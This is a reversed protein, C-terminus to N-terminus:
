HQYTWGQSATRARPAHAPPRRSRTEYRQVPTRRIERTTEFYRPPPVNTIRPWGHRVPGEPAAIRAPHARPRDGEPVVHVIRYGNRKLERLLAPLAQVTVPQVDHLLLIGKGKEGLRKMAKSVVEDATTSKFWDDAEADSSFVSIGRTVVYGEAEASRQLGPFRFFPAIMRPDGAAATISAIGDDIERQNMEAPMQNFTLPHNQSHTGITHGAGYIRRVMDPHRSAQRGVLFFTAKVCEAALANLVSNTYPPLPGDDFTLVVERPNLPLTHEYQTTGIRKHEHANVTLVRSVGLADRNGPCYAAAPASGAALLIGCALYAVCRM